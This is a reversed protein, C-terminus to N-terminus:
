LHQALWRRAHASVLELAGTEEFRHGAGAIVVLDREGGLRELSAHDIQLVAPDAAGVILLTAARM